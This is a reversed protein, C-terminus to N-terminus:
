KVDGGAEREKRMMENECVLEVMRKNADQYLKWWMEAEEQMCRQLDQAMWVRLELCLVIVMWCIWSWDGSDTFNSVGALLTLVASAIDMGTLVRRKRDNKM